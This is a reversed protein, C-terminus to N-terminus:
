KAIFLTRDHSYCLADVHSLLLGGRLGRNHWSFFCLDTQLQRLGAATLVDSLKRPGRMPADQSGYLPRVILVGMNNPAISKLETEPPLSIGWVSANGGASPDFDGKGPICTGPNYSIARRM